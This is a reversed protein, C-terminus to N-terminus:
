VLCPLPFTWVVFMEIATFVTTTLFDGTALCSPEFGEQGIM